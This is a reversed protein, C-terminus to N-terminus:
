LLFPGLVLSADSSNRVAGCVMLQSPWCVSLSAVAEELLSVIGMLLFIYISM